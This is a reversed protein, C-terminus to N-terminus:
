FEVAEYVAFFFLVANARLRSRTFGSAEGEEERKKEEDVGKM